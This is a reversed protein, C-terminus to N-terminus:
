RMPAASAGAAATPPTTVQAGAAAAAAVEAEIRAEERAVLVMVRDWDLSPNVFQHHRRLWDQYEADRLAEAQKVSGSATRVVFYRAVVGAALLGGVILATPPKPRRFSSAMRAAHSPM